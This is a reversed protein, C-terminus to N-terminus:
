GMSFAMQNEICDLRIVSWVIQNMAQDMINLSDDAHNLLAVLHTSSWITINEWVSITNMCEDTPNVM